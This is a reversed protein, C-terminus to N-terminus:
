DLDMTTSETSFFYPFASKRTWCWSNLRQIWVWNSDDNVSAINIWGLDEHYSWSQNVNWFLGFWESSWWGGELQNSGKVISEAKERFVATISEDKSLFIVTTELNQSEVEAGEWSVFEFGEKPYAKIEAWGTGFIGSGAVTGYSNNSSVIALNYLGLENIVPNESLDYTPDIKFHAVISSNQDLAINSNALQTNSIGVGEWYDFLYGPNPKAFISHDSSHSFIGQGFTWGAIEPNATITLEIPNVPAFRANILMPKEITVSLDVTGTKYLDGASNTWKEFYYGESPIARLVLIQGHPVHASLSEGTGTNAWEVSGKGSPSTTVEVAHSIQKFVGIVTSFGTIQIQANATTSFSTGTESEWRVFEFGESPTAKFNPTSGLAFSSGGVISGGTQNMLSNNADLTKVVKSIAILTESFQVSVSTDGLISVHTSTSYRDEVNGSWQVFENGVLPTVQIPVRSGHTFLYQNDTTFANGGTSPTLVFNLNYLTPKYVSRISAAESVLLSTNASLPNTIGASGEWRVFEYHELPVASLTITSGYTASLASSPSSITGGEGAVFNLAFQKGVFKAELHLDHELYTQISPNNPYPLIQDSTKTIVKIKNGSYDDSSGHYYLADPADAPVTITLVGSSARSNSVGNLYEGVFSGSPSTSLYFLDGGSLSCNFTYTFGRILTLAPSEIGDIFIKTGDDCLERRNRRIM